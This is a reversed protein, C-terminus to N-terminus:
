REVQLQSESSCKPNQNFHDAKKMPIKHNTEASTTIKLKNQLFHLMHKVTTIYHLTYVKYFFFPDRPNHLPKMETFANDIYKSGNKTYFVSSICFSKGLVLYSLFTKSRNHMHMYVGFSSKKKKLFVTCVCASVYV